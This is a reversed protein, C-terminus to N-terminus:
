TKMREKFRGLKSFTYQQKSTSNNLPNNHTSDLDTM